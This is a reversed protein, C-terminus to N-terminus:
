IQNDDVLAIRALLADTIIKDAEQISKLGVPVLLTHVTDKYSFKVRRIFTGSIEENSIIYADM